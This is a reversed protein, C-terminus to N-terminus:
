HPCQSAGVMEVGEYVKRANEIQPLVVREFYERTVAEKSHGSPVFVVFGHTHPVPAATGPVLGEVRVVRIETQDPMMKQNLRIALWFPGIWGGASALFNCKIRIPLVHSSEMVTKNDEQGRPIWYLEHKTSACSAKAIM